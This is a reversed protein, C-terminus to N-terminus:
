VADYLSTLHLVKLLKLEICFAEAMQDDTMQVSVQDFSHLGDDQLQSSYTVHAAVGPSCTVKSEGCRQGIVLKFNAGLVRMCHSPPSALSSFTAVRRHPSQDTSEQATEVRGMM